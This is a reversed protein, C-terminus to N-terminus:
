IQSAQDGRLGLSELSNEGIGCNLIMLEETSLISAKQKEANRFLIGSEEWLYGFCHKM